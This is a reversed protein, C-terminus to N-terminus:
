DGLNFATTVMLWSWVPYKGIRSVEFKGSRLSTEAARTLAAGPSSVVAIQRVVGSPDLLLDVVVDGSLGKRVAEPPYVPPNGGLYRAPYRNLEQYQRLIRFSRGGSCKAQGAAMRRSAEAQDGAARAVDALLYEVAADDSRTQRAEELLTRARSLLRIKNREWNGTDAAPGEVPLLEPKGQGAMMYLQGLTLLMLSHRHGKELGMEMEIMADSGSGDRFYESCIGLYREVEKPVGVDEACGALRHERWNGEPVPVENLVGYISEASGTETGTEPPPASCSALLLTVAAAAMALVQFPRPTTM